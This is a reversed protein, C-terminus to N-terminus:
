EAGLKRPESKGRLSAPLLSLLILVVGVVSYFLRLNPDNFLMTSQSLSLEDFGGEANLDQPNLSLNYFRIRDAHSTANIKIAAKTDRLDVNAYGWWFAERTGNELKVTAGALRSGVPIEFSQAFYFRNGEVPGYTIRQGLIADISRGYVDVKASRLIFVQDAPGDLQVPEDGLELAGNVPLRVIAPSTCGPASDFVYREAHSATLVRRAVGSEIVAPGNVVISLVGDIGHKYVLSAGASPRVFTPTQPCADILAFKGEQLSEVRAGTLAFSSLEGTGVKVRAVETEASLALVTRPLPLFWIATLVAFLLLPIFFWRLVRGAWGLYDFFSQMM